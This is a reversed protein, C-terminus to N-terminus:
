APLDDRVEPVESRKEDRKELNTIRRELAKCCEKVEGAIRPRLADVIKPLLVTVVALAVREGWM